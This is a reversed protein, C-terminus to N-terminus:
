AYTGTEVAAPLARRLKTMVWAIAPFALIAALLGALIGLPPFVGGRLVSLLLWTMFSASPALLAFGWWFSLFSNRVLFRRQALLVPHSILYVLAHVGLPFGTLGDQLLGIAFVASRPTLDPRLLVWCYVGMLPLSPAISAYLPLPPNAVSLFVLVVISLLPLIGRGWRDVRGVGTDDTM